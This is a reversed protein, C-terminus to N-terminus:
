CQHTTNIATTGERTVTHQTNTVAIVRQSQCKVTATCLVHQLQVHAAHVSRCVRAVECCFTSAKIVRLGKRNCPPTAHHATAASLHEVSKVQGVCACAVTHQHQLCPALIAALSTTYQVALQCLTAKSVAQRQHAPNHWSTQSTCATDFGQVVTQTDEHIVRELCANYRKLRTYM